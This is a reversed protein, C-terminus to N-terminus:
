STPTYVLVARVTSTNEGTMCDLRQTTRTVRYVSNATIGVAPCDEVKVFEDPVLGVRGPITFEIEEEAEGHERAFRAAMNTSNGGDRDEYFEWYDGGASNRNTQDAVVYTVQPFRDGGFRGKWSNRFRSGDHRREVRRPMTEPTATDYDVTFAITSVGHSYAPPGDDVFAQNDWGWRLKKGAGADVANAVEDFHQRWSQGDQPALNPRSPITGTPIVLDAVAADVSIMTDDMGLAHCCNHWWASVTQGGAQRLDHIVTQDVRAAFWDGLQLRLRPMGVFEDGSRWRQVGGPMIYLTATDAAALDTGAGTQWGANVVVRGQEVWNPYPEAADTTIGFDATASINGYGDRTIEVAQLLGDGDTDEEAGLGAPVTITAAHDQSVFWLVPRTTMETQGPAFTVAPRYGTGSAAAVSTTWNVPTTDVTSWAATDEWVTNAGPLTWYDRATAYLDDPVSSSYYIPSVNVAMRAGAMGLRIVGSKVRVCDHYVHWWSGNDQTNRILLHGGDFHATDEIYEFVWGERTVGQGTDRTEGGESLVWGTSYPATPAVGTNVHVLPRKYTSDGFPLYFSLWGDTWTGARDLAGDTVRISAEWILKVQPTVGQGPPPTYRAVQMVINPAWSANTYMAAAYTTEATGAAYVSGDDFAAAYAAPNGSLYVSRVAQNYSANVTWDAGTMDVPRLDGIPAIAGLPEIFETGQLTWSPSCRWDQSFPLLTVVGDVGPPNYTLKAQPRILAM